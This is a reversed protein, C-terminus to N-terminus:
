RRARHGPHLIAVNEGLQATVAAARGPGPDGRGELKLERVMREYRPNGRLTHFSPYQLMFTIGTSREAVCRELAGLAAGAEDIVMSQIAVEYWQNLRELMAIWEVMAARYGSSREVDLLREAFAADDFLKLWLIREAMAENFRGLQDLVVMRRFHPRRAEPDLASAEALTAVARDVSGAMWWALGLYEVTERRLPDLRRARGLEAVAEAHRGVTALFWGHTEAAEASLPALAVARALDVEAGRWDFEYAMKLHGLVAWAEGLRDDLALAREASERALRVAEDLPLPRRITTSTLFLYTAALGAHALADGPDLALAREFLGLARLAPVREAQNLLARAQLQLSRAEDSPLRGGHPAIPASAPLSSQAVVRVPVAMRYGVRAVTEICDASPAAGLMKRLTSIHVTLNREEVTVEPWLRAYFTEREVLRGDAELLLQLVELAKGTVAVPQRDRTLRRERVDLIFPGFAYVPM